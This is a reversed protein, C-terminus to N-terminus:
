GQPLLAARAAKAAALWNGQVKPGVEDFPPIPKGDWTLGGAAENYADFMLRALTEDDISPNMANSVRGPPLSSRAQALDRWAVLLPRFHPNALRFVKIAFAWKPYKASFADWKAPSDFWLIWTLTAAFLPYVILGLLVPWYPRSSDILHQVDMTM